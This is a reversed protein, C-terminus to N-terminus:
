TYVELCETLVSVGERDLGLTPQSNQDNTCFGAPLYFFLASQRGWKGKWWGVLRSQQRDRGELPQLLGM